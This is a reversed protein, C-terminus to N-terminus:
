RGAMRRMVSGKWLAKEGSEAIGNGAQKVRIVHLYQRIAAYGVPVCWVGFPLAMIM